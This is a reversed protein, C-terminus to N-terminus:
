QGQGQEKLGHEDFSGVAERMAAALAGHWSQHRGGGRGQELGSVKTELLQSSLEEATSSLSRLCSIYDTHCAGDDCPVPLALDECKLNPTAQEPFDNYGWGFRKGNRSAREANHFRENSGVCDSVYPMGYVTPAQKGCRRFDAVTRKYNMLVTM